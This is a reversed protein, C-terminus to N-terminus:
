SGRTAFEALMASGRAGGAAADHGLHADDPLVNPSGLVDILGTRELTTHPAAAVGTLVLGQGAAVLADHYHRLAKLTTSSFSRVDGLDLVVM